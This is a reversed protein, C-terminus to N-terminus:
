RETQIRITGNKVKFQYNKNIDLLTNNRGTKLGIVLREITKEHIELQNARLWSALLEGAVSHPLNIFTSRNIRGNKPLIKDMISFIQSSTKASSKIIKLIDQRQNKTLRPMLNQRVYNRLYKQDQNTPDERWALGQSNAYKIIEAKSFDLLPRVIDGDSKLSSLGKIKTGRLLNILTTEIVDDQHHATVVADSKTQNIIERLFKYRAERATAESAVPGLKGEGYFFPLQYKAALEEVFIRDDLSNQRIGHDFHAVVIQQKRLLHLLAVSDVGGSVALTYKGPKLSINM